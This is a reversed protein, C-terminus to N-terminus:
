CVTSVLSPAVSVPKVSIVGAWFDSNAAKSKAGGVGESRVLGTKYDATRSGNRISDIVQVCSTDFKHPKAQTSNRSDTLQRQCCRAFFTM